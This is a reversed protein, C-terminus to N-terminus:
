KKIIKQNFENTYASPNNLSLAYQENARCEVRFVQNSFEDLEKIQAVRTVVPISSKNSLYKEGNKNFGLVRVYPPIKLFFYNDICLFGCLLIRRIRALTYRKSKIKGLLETFTYSTRISEYIVNCLGESIDPLKSIEILSLQKLRSIIALDLKSINSFLATDVISFIDAPIYKKSYEKNNNLMAYRILSSSSYGDADSNANHGAGIRKIASFEIKAGLRHAAMIYETALTDNPNKLVEEASSDLFEGVLKSRIKSFTNNETVHEKIKANFEDSLLLKAVRNLLNIDGCESGFYLKDVGLAVLQSVGGLAFNQATSMSWPVPLEVVIDAGATLATEARKFKPIIATDGRQVFNGSLVVAVDNGDNKAIDILYKHGSHLPNFEAVIGALPLNIV